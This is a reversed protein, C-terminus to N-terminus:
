RDGNQNTSHQICLWVDTHRETVYQDDSDCAQAEFSFNSMLYNEKMKYVDLSTTTEM